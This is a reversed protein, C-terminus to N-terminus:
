TLALEHDNCGFEAAMRRRITQINRAVTGQYTYPLMNIVDMYRWTAELVVRPCPCTFRNNLDILTRDLKFAFQIERWYFEDQAVDEASRGAVGQRPAAIAGLGKPEAPAVTGLGSFGLAGAVWLFARRSWLDFTM